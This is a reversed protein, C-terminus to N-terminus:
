SQLEDRDSVSRARAARGTSFEPGFMAALFVVTLL